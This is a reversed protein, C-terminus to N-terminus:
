GFALHRALDRRHYTHVPRTAKRQRRSSTSNRAGALLYERVLMGTAAHWAAAQELALPLDGLKDVLLDAEHDGVDGRKRLLEVSEPRTFGDV